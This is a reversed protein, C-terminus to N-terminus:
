VTPPHHKNRVKGKYDCEVRNGEKFTEASPQVAPKPTTSGELRRINSAPVNM